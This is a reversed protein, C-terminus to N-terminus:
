IEMNLIEDYHRKLFENLKNELFDIEAGGGGDISKIEAHSGNKFFLTIKDDVRVFKELLCKAPEFKEYGEDPPYMWPIKDFKLNRSERIKMFKRM